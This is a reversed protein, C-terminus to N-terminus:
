SINNRWYNLTDLLIQKFSIEPKWGTIRRFKETDSILFPVKTPRVFEPNTEWKIDSVASMETLMELAQQFTFIKDEEDSGVLYLEGPECQHVALWYARVIDKVHTFNRKDGTDGTKIIPKQLGKEIRAIQWAYSSIGFVNERRPGEHNFTRTRYVPIGYSRFYVYGILDQAVKTVAYPNVPRLVTYENIPLEDEKIDGYEEGSGPIHFKVDPKIDRIADLFNVTGLYNTDMYERPNDWSPSVFSESAMHFVIDPMVEKITKRVATADLINCDHWIIKDEFGKVHDMRSLHWRKTGHVEVDQMNLLYEALHSGVFGTVGTILVKEM